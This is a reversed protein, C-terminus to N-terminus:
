EDARTSSTPSHQASYRGWKFTVRIPDGSCIVSYDPVELHPPCEEFDECIAIYEFGRRMYCYDAKLVIIKEMLRRVCDNGEEIFSEAVFFRGIRRSRM